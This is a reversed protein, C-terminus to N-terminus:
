LCLDSLICMQTCRSDHLRTVFNQNGGSYTFIDHCHSARAPCSSEPYRMLESTNWIKTACKACGRNSEALTKECSFGLETVLDALRCKDVGARKCKFTEFYNETSVSRKFDDYFSNFNCRCVRCFDSCSQKKTPRGKVAKEPTERDSSSSM